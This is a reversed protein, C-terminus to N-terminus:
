GQILPLPDVPRDALRVEFHCHPGTSSGSSGLLGVPQGRVVREGVGVLPQLLHGYLTVLGGAHAIVVYTGYGTIGTDVAAVMGGDAALVPSGLGAALDLGTHFHPYGARAPEIALDTPGFGQTITAGPVPWSFAPPRAPGLSAMQDPNAEMWLAAQDWAAQQAAGVLMQQDALLTAAIRDALEADGSGSRALEARARQLSAALARAVRDEEAMLRGLQEGTPGIVHEPWM